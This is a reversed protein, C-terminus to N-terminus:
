LYDVLNYTNFKNNRNYNASNNPSTNNLNLSHHSTRNYPVNSSPVTFIDDNSNVITADKYTSDLVFDKM